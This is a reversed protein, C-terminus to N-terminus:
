EYQVTYSLTHAHIWGFWVREEYIAANSCLMSIHLLPLSLDERICIYDQVDLPSLGRVVLSLLCPLALDSTCELLWVWYQVQLTRFDLTLETLESFAPLFFPETQFLLPPMVDARRLCLARISTPPAFHFQDCYASLFGSFDSDLVPSRVYRLDLGLKEVAPADIHELLSMMQAPPIRRIDLTRISPLALRVRELPRGHVPAIFEEQVRLFDGGVLIHSMRRALQILAVFEPINIPDIPDDINLEILGSMVGEMARWNVRCRRLTLTNICRSDMPWAANAALANLGGPPFTNHLAEPGDTAISHPGTYITSVSSIIHPHVRANFAQLCADLVLADDAVLVFSSWRPASPSLSTLSTSAIDCQEQTSILLTELGFASRYAASFVCFVDLPCTGSRTLVAKIAEATTFPSIQVEVWFLNCSAIAAAWARCVLM